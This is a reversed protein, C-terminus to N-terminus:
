IFFFKKLKLVKQILNYTKFIILCTIGIIIFALLFKNRSIGILLNSIKFEVSVFKLYSNLFFYYLRQKISKFISIIFFFKSKILFHWGKLLLLFYYYYFIYFLARVKIILFNIILFRFSILNFLRFKISLFEVLNYISYLTITLYYVSFFFNYTKLTFFFFKYNKKM